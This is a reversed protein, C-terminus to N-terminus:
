SEANNEETSENITLYVTRSFSYIFDLLHKSYNVDEWNENSQFLIFEFALRKKIEDIFEHRLSYFFYDPLALTIKSIVEVLNEDSIGLTKECNGEGILENIIQIVDNVIEIKKPHM